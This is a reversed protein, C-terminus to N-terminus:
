AMEELALDEQFRLLLVERYAAPIRDLVRAMRAGEEISAVEELPSPAAAAPEFGRGDEPNMLADLSDSKKLRFLDIVLHRAISFLWVEFKWQARYQHGRELVHLWTEQFLDEATARNGTVSLLYRFLRHQYEEILEDLVGPDGSRLGQALRARDQKMPNEICFTVADMSPFVPLATLFVCEVARKELPTFDLTMTKHAIRLGFNRAHNLGFRKAAFFILV